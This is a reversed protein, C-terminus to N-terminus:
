LPAFSLIQNAIVKCLVYIQYMSQKSCTTLLILLYIITGIICNNETYFLKNKLEINLLREYSIYLLTNEIVVLVM